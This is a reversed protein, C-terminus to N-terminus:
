ATKLTLATQTIDQLVILAIPQVLLLINEPLASKQLRHVIQVVTAVQANKVNKQDLYRLIIDVQVLHANLKDARLSHVRLVLHPCPVKIPVNMALNVILAPIQCVPILMPELHAHMAPLPYNSLTLVLIVHFLHCAQILVNTVQQVHHVNQIVKPMQM